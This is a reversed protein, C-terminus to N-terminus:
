KSSQNRKAIREIKEYAATIMLVLASGFGHVISAVMGESTAGGPTRVCDTLVDPHACAEHPATKQTHRILAITGEITALVGLLSQDHKIGIHVCADKYYKIFQLVWAPGCAFAATIKAMDQEQTVEISYISVSRIIDIVDQRQQDSLSASACWGTVSKGVEIATNPMIRVIRDHGSAEILEAITRGTVTSIIVTNPQVYGRLEALAAMANDPETALLLMDVEKLDLNNTTARIGLEKVCEISSQHQVSGIIREAPVHGGEKLGRVFASGIRGCGLVGIETNDRM